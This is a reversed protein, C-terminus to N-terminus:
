FGVPKIKKEQQYTPDIFVEDISGKDGLEIAESLSGAMVFKRLIYRREKM